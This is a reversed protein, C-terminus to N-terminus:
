SSKKMKHLISSKRHSIRRTENYSNKIMVGNVFHTDDGGQVLEHGFVKLTSNEKSVYDEVINKPAELMSCISALLSAGEKDTFKNLYPNHEEIAEVSSLLRDIVIRARENNDKMYYLQRMTSTDRAISIHYELADLIIKDLILRGVNRIDYKLSLESYRYILVNYVMNLSETILLIAYRTFERYFSIAETSWGRSRLKNKIHIEDLDEAIGFNEVMLKKLESHSKNIHEIDSVI